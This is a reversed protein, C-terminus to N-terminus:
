KHGVLEAHTMFHAAFVFVALTLVGAALISEESSGPSSEPCAVCSLCDLAGLGLLMARNQKADPLGEDTCLLKLIKCWDQQNRHKDLGTILVAM